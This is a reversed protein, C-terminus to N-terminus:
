GFNIDTLHDGRELGEWFAVQDPRMGTKDIPEPKPIGLDENIKDVLAIIEQASKRKAAQIMKNM